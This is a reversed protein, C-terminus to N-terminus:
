ANPGPLAPPQLARIRQWLDDHVKRFRRRESGHSRAMEARALTLCAELFSRDMVTPDKAVDAWGTAPDFATRYGASMLGRARTTVDARLNEAFAPDTRALIGADCAYGSVSAYAAYQGRRERSLKGLRRYSWVVVGVAYLGLLLWFLAQVRSDSSTLAFAVCALIGVYGWARLYGALVSPLHLPIKRGIAAGRDNKGLMLYSGIPILPLYYVHVFQTQVSSGGSEEVTGYIKRGFVIVM